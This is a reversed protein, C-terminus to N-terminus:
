DVKPLIGSPLRRSALTANTALLLVLMTSPVAVAAAAHSNGEYQLAFAMFGIMEHGSSWLLASLTLETLELGVPLRPM